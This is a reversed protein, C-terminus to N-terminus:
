NKKKNGDRYIIKKKKYDVQVFLRIFSLFFNQHHNDSTKWWYIFYIYYIFDIFILNM